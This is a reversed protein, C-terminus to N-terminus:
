RGAPVELVDLETIVKPEPTCEVDLDPSPNATVQQERYVRVRGDALPEFWPVDVRECVGMENDYSGDGSWWVTLPDVSILFTEVQRSFFDEGMECLLQFARLDDRGEIPDLSAEVQECGGLDLEAEVELVSRGDVTLRAYVNGERIVVEPVLDDPNTPTPARRTQSDESTDPAPPSPPGTPCRPEAAPVVPRACAAALLGALAVPRSWSSTCAVTSKVPWPAM